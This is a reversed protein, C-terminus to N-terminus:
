FVGPQPRDLVEPNLNTCQGPAISDARETSTRPGRDRVRRAIARATSNAERILARRLQPEDSKDICAVLTRLRRALSDTGRAEFNRGASMRQESWRAWRRLIGILVGDQSVSQESALHGGPRPKSPTNPATLPRLELASRAPAAPSFHSAGIRRGSGHPLAAIVRGIVRGRSPEEFPLAEPDVHGLVCRGMADLRVRRLGIVPGDRVVVLRNVNAQAGPEVILYDDRHVGFRSFSDSQVRLAFLRRSRWAGRPLSLASEVHGAGLARVRQLRADSPITDSASAVTPRSSDLFETVPLDLAPRGATKVGRFGPSRESVILV